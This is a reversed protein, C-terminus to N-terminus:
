QDISKHYRTPDVPSDSSGTVKMASALYVFQYVM